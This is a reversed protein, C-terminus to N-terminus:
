CGELALNFPGCAPRAERVAGRVIIAVDHIQGGGLLYRTATPNTKLAENNVRNRHCGLLSERTLPMNDNSVSQEIQTRAAPLSYCECKTPFTARVCSIRATPQGTWDTAIIPGRDERQKGRKDGGGSNIGDTGDCHQWLEAPRPASVMSVSRLAM